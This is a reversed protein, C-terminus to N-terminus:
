LLRAPSLEEALPHEEGAMVCALVEGAALGETM